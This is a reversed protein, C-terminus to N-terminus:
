RGRRDQNASRQHHKRHKRTKVCRKKKKHVSRHKGRPCRPKRVSRRNGPGSNPSSVAPAAPAVLAQGQCTDGECPRAPEPPEPFGGGVRVDYLDIYSDRDARVLRQRTVVFVNDGSASSDAFATPTSGRGSSLLTPRGTTPDFQYTDMVGNADTAVLPEATSFFVTGNSALFRPRLGPVVSAPSISSIAPLITADTSAESTLPCSACHLSDALTDYLYMQHHGGSGPVLAGGRTVTGKAFFALYRGDPTVRSAGPKSARASLLLTNNVRDVDNAVTVTDGDEWLRVQGNNNYFIRSADDSSGVVPTGTISDGGSVNGTDTVLTLNQEHEPDPGDTYLYLDPGDNTDADLLRSTTNFIVHRSDGTMQQLVVNEPTPPIGSTEPESIWATSTHDVRMYLQGASTFLVRSGDPSITERYERAALEASPAPTGDPLISALRLTGDDWEYVSPVLPAGPVLRAYSAFAIHRSDHSASMGIGEPGFFSFIFLFRFTAPDPDEGALPTTVLRLNRSDTEESYFNPTQPLPRPAGPLDYGWIVARSLDDSFNSPINALFATQETEPAPTPSIGHNGWGESARRALYTTQGTAGSGITDGFSGRSLYAAGNGDAAAVVTIEVGASVDAGNKDPPSVMEFARCEGLHTSNQEERIAENPCAAASAAGSTTFAHDVGATTGAVSAAVLRFHYTTQPSLGGLPLSVHIPEGGSGAAADKSAPLAQCPNASCDASGWEFWYTTASNRPNIRGHLTAETTGIQGAGLTQVLPPAALTTFTTTAETTGGLSTAVLTLTYETNPQLKVGDDEVGQAPGSVTGGSLGQCAPVCEFHWSTDFAPDNPDPANPDVEASFHASTPGVGSVTLNSITPKAVALTTFEEEGSEKSLGAYHAVLRVKYESGPALGTADLEVAIPDDSAAPPTGGGEPEAASLEGTGVGIWGEGEKNVQFEWGIPLLGTQADENGGEPDIAGSLHATTYGVAGLADLTVSPATAPDTTFSEVSSLAESGEFFEVNDLAALRVEYPTGAALGSLDASVEASEGPGVFGAYCFGSWSGEGEKTYEFCWFTGNGDAPVEVTGKVHATTISHTTVPDISLTPPAAHAASAAVMLCTLVATVALTAKRANM